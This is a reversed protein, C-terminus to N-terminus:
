EGELKTARTESLSDNNELEDVAVGDHDFNINQCLQETYSVKKKLQGFM